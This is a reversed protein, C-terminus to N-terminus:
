LVEEELLRRLRSNSSGGNKSLYKVVYKGIIDFEINVKDGVRLLNLNTNKITEPILVMSVLGSSVENITLSVGNIAISGKEVVFLDFLKDFGISLLYVFEGIKELRKVIGTTDIHGTLIHGGFRGDARLASECNVLTGSRYEGIITKKLSEFSVDFALVEKDKFSVTLCVGDVAISDGLNTKSAVSPQEILLQAGRDRRLLSKVKGISEILGTFM